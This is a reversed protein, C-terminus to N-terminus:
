YREEGVLKGGEVDTAVSSHPISTGDRSVVRLPLRSVVVLRRPIVQGSTARATTWSPGRMLLIAALLPASRGWSCGATTWAPSRMPTPTDACGSEREGRQSWGASADPRRVSSGAHRVAPLTPPHPTQGTSRVTLVPSTNITAARLLGTGHAPGQRRAQCENSQRQGRQKGRRRRRGDGSVMVRGHGLRGRGPRCRTGVLRGRGGCGRGRDRGGACRGRGGRGRGGCRRGSRCRGRCRGATPDRGAVRCGTRRCGIRGADSGVWSTRATRVRRPRSSWAVGPCNAPAAPRGGRGTPPGALDDLLQYPAM